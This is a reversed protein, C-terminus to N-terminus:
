PLQLLAEVLGLARRRQEVLRRRALRVGDLDLFDDLHRHRHEVVLDVPELLDHPLQDREALL